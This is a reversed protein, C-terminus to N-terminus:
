PTKEKQDLHARYRHLLDIVMRELIARTHHSVRHWDSVLVTVQDCFLEPNAFLKQDSPDSFELPPAQANPIHYRAPDENVTFLANIKRTLKRSLPKTGGEVQALYSVSLDLKQALEQQTMGLADRKQRLFNKQLSIDNKM